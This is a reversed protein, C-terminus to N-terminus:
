LIALSHFEDPLQDGLAAIYAAPSNRFQRIALERYMLALDNQGSQIALLMRFMPSIDLMSDSIVMRYILEPSMATTSGLRRLQVAACIKESELTAKVEEVSAQPLKKVREELKANLIENPYPPVTGLRAAFTVEVAEKPPVGREALKLALTKWVSTYNKGSKADFGGDYSKVKRPGGPDRGVRALM